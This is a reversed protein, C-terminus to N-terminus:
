KHFSRMHFHAQEPLRGFGQSIPCARRAACGYTICDAGADTNLYDHCSATDYGIGDFASVPCANRCPQAACSDCPPNQRPKEPLSYPLGLAGRFSVWLGARAHVLLRIPSPWIAGSALAWQYFAAYPPGDFPFYAEADIEAAWAGIVRASWRDMPDPAADCYEPSKTFASWFNPEDPGLLVVTKVHDGLGHAPTPHFYGLIDLHRQRAGHSLDHLSM